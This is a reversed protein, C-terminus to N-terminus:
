KVYELVLKQWSGLLHEQSRGLHSKITLLVWLRVSWRTTDAIIMPHGISMEARRGPLSSGETSDDALDEFASVREFATPNILVRETRDDSWGSLFLMIVSIKASGFVLLVELASCRAHRNLMAFTISGESSTEVMTTSLRQGNNPFSVFSGARMASHLAREAWRM